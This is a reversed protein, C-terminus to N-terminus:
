VWHLSAPAAGPTGGTTPTSASGWSSRNRAHPSARTRRSSAGASPSGRSAPSASGATTLAAPTPTSPTGGAARNASALADWHWDAEHRLRHDAVRPETTRGEVAPPVSWAGNEIRERYTLTLAGDVGARIVSTEGIPTTPDAQQEPRSRSPETRRSPRAASACSRVTDGDVLKTDRRSRTTTASSCSTNTALLEDVTLSASDFPVTQGDVLSSATTAPACCSTSGAHLRGPINRVAVLKGVHLSRM